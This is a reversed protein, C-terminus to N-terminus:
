LCDDAITIDALDCAALWESVPRGALVLGPALDALPLLVFAREHARPHPLQLVDTCCSETEAAILDLDITRPGQPVERERGLMREVQLCWRMLDPLELSTVVEVVANLFPPQDTVPGSPPTHYVKSVAIVETEPLHRMASLATRFSALVDGVNGGLGIWVRQRATQQGQM